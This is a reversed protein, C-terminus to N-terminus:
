GRDAIGSWLVGTMSRAIRGALPRRLDPIFDQVTRLHALTANGPRLRRDVADLDRDIQGAAVVLAAHEALEELLSADLETFFKGPAQSDAYILGVTRDLVVLPLCVLARTQARVVTQSGALGPDTQADCAIVAAGAALAKRVASRCGAFAPEALARCDMNHTCAVEMDGDPQTLMAFARETGSISLVSRMLRRLVQVPDEAADIRRRGEVTLQRLGTARAEADRRTAESVLDFRLLLSGLGIWEGDGLPAHKVRRGGAVVGNKSGLDVIQWQGAFRSIRAHRRSLEADDICIDCDAGRGVRYQADDDLLYERAPGDGRVITLRASM